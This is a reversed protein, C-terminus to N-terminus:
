NMTVAASDIAVEPAVVEETSNEVPANPDEWIDGEPAKPNAPTTGQFSLVYSAVQAIEAPKLNQKWAIMGKGDRGGESITNFVNKIGGGLIWHNDTLNPGIGGGGDAMHCAVCNSEFIGKGANLDAADTLLEVTSADVLDKATKKYAEIELQAAAVEQEYELDQDYDNFVHFRALYVVGFVISAYFLYVWWPPLNNDLERIGDYNHDLIIEEESEIPKSGLMKTYMKKGWTWEWKKEKEALYRVKAEDDLTNYLVNEIAQVIFAIAILLLLILTMFGFMLTPYAIFAPKDGSDIYIEMLVIVLFFAVTIRLWWATTNKM